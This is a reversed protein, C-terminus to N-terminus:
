PATVDRDVEDLHPAPTLPDASRDRASRRVSHMAGGLLAIGTGGSLFLLLGVQQDLGEAILVGRPPVLFYVASLAGLIVALLAPGLSGYWAVAVIALFLTAYPFGLGLVPDLLLRVWIALAVAIGACGYRRIIDRFFRM